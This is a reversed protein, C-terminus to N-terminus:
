ESIAMLNLLRYAFLSLNKRYFINDKVIVYERKQVIDPGTINDEQRSGVLFIQSKRAYKARVTVEYTM